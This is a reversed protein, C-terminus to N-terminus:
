YKPHYNVYEEELVVAKHCKAEYLTKAITVAEEETHALIEMEYRLIRSVVIHYKEM